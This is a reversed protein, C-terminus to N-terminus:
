EVREKLRIQLCDSLCDQCDSLIGVNRQKISCYAVFDHRRVTAEEAASNMGVVREKRDWYPINLELSKQKAITVADAETRAYGVTGGFSQCGGDKNVRIIDM